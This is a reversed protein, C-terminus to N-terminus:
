NKRYINLGRRRAADRYKKHRETKIRDKPTYKPVLTNMIMDHGRLKAKIKMKDELNFLINRKRPDAKIYRKFKEKAKKDRKAQQAKEHAKKRHDIYKSTIYGAATGVVYAGLKKRKLKKAVKSALKSEEYKTKRAM